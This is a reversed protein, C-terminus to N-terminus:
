KEVSEDKKFSIFTYKSEDFLWSTHNEMEEELSLPESGLLIFFIFFEILKIWIIFSKLRKYAVKKFIFYLNDM